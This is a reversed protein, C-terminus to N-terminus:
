NGSLQNIRNRISTDPINLPLESSVKASLMESYVRIAQKSDGSLDYAQALYYMLTKDKSTLANSNLIKICEKYDKSKLLINIYTDLINSNSSSLQYAEKIKELASKIDPTSETFLSWAYNNLIAAKRISDKELVGKFQVLINKYTSQADDFQMRNSYLRALELPYDINKPSKAQATKLADIAKVTDGSQLWAKSLLSASAAPSLSSKPLESIMEKYKGRKLMLNYKALIFTEDKPYKNLLHTLIIEASDIKEKKIAFLFNYWQITIDDSYKTSLIKQAIESKDVMNKQLAIDRFLELSKKTYIKNSHLTNVKFLADDIKGINFLVTAYETMIQPSWIFSHPLNSYFVSAKDFNNILVYARAVLISLFPNYLNKSVLSEFTKVTTSDKMAHATLKVLDAADKSNPLSLNSMKELTSQLGSDNSTSSYLYAYMSYLHLAFPNSEGQNQPITISKLMKEAESFQNSILYFSAQDIQLKQRISDPLTSDSFLLKLNSYDFKIMYLSVLQSISEYNIVGKNKCDLLFTIATDITGITTHILAIRNGLAPDPRKKYIDLWIAYASDLNGFKYFIEGRLIENKTTDPLKDYLSLAYQIRSKNDIQFSLMALSYLTQINKFGNDWATKTHIYAINQNPAYQAATLQYIANSPEAKAAKKFWKYAEEQKSSKLFKEGKEFAGKSNTCNCLFLAFATTIIVSLKLLKKM